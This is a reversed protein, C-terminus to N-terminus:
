KLEVYYATKKSLREGFAFSNNMIKNEYSQQKLYNNRVIDFISARRM